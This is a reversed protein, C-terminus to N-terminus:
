KPRENVFWDCFTNLDNDFMRNFGNSLTWQPPITVKDDSANLVGRDDEVVIKLTTVTIGQARLYHYECDFRFDSIVAVDVGSRSIDAFCHQIWFCPNVSRFFEGVRIWLDVINTVNLGPLKDNRLEPINDYDAKPLTDFYHECFKKLHSAIAFQEVSYGHQALAQVIRAAAYDKGVRSRPSCILIVHM